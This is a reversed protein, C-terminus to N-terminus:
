KRLAKVLLVVGTLVVASGVVWGYVPLGGVNKTLFNGDSRGGHPTMSGSSPLMGGPTAVGASVLQWAKMQASKTSDNPSSLSAQAAVRASNQAANVRAAQSATNLGAGNAQSAARAASELAQASALQQPNGGAQAISLQTEAAAWGADASIAKATAADNAKTAAGGNQSDQYSKIGAKSLEDAADIITNYDFGVLEKRELERVIQRGLIEYQDSM